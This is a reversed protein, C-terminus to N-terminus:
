EDEDDGIGPKKPGFRYVTKQQLFPALADELGEFRKFLKSLASHSITLGEQDFGGAINREHLVKIVKDAPYWRQESPRNDYVLGNLELPGNVACWGKLAKDVQKVLQKGARSLEAAKMAQERTLLRAPILEPRDMVPCQLTCYDCDPGPTAPWEDHEEAAAISAAVAAVEDGFTALEHPQFVVSTLRGLRVYSHTFRYSQFNPWIRMAMFSYWRAQFDQRLQEETLMTWFTKWDVQELENPHAYVLDPAYGSEEQREESALFAKLNLQFKEAWWRHIYQVEPVLRAPTHVKAIGEPFALRAEEDDAPLNAAVLRMVYAHATAHFGIGVRAYDSEDPVGDVWIKRYRYLCSKAAQVASRRLVPLTTM